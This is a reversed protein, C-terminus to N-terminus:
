TAWGSIPVRLQASMIWPNLNMAVTGSGLISTSIAPTTSLAILFLRFTTATDVQCIGDNSSVTSGGSVQARGVHGRAYDIINTTGAQLPCVTTDVSFGGPIAFRYNGTGTTGASSQEYRYDLLMDNGQRRWYVRDIVITGKTPNASIATITIAGASVWDTDWNAAIIRYNASGDSELLVWNGTLLKFSTLDGNGGKIKDSGAATFTHVIPASGSATSNNRVLFKGGAAFTNAAPLTIAQNSGDAAVAQRGVVNAATISGSGTITYDSLVRGSLLDFLTTSTGNIALYAVIDVSGGAILTYVTVIRKTGGNNVQVTVPHSVSGSNYLTLSKAFIVHGSAPAPVVAAVATTGTSVGDNEGGTTAQTSTTLDIWSSTFVVDGTAGGADILLELSKTTADLAIM